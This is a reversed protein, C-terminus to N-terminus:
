PALSKSPLKNGPPALRKVRKIGNARIEERQKEIRFAKKCLTFEKMNKKYNDHEMGIKQKFREVFRDKEERVSSRVQSEEEERMEQSVIDMLQNTSPSHANPNGM